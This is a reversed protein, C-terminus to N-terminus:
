LAGLSSDVVSFLSTSMLSNFVGSDDLSPILLLSEFLIISRDASYNGVSPVFNSCKSISQFLLLLVTYFLLPLLSEGFNSPLIGDSLEFLM